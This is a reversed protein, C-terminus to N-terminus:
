ALLRARKGQAKLISVARKDFSLFEKAGLCDGQHAIVGDAFDGGADLFGLGAEVAPLDISVNEANTLLRISEAIEATSRRYLRLMVWVFECLASTPVVVLEAKSLTRAALRSQVYDDQLADRLLLNTDATIKV